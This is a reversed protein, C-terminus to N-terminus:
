VYLWLRESRREPFKGKLSIGKLGAIITARTRGDGVFPLATDELAVLDVRIRGSYLQRQCAMCLHASHKQPAGPMVYYTSRLLTVFFGGMQREESLPRGCSDCEAIGLEAISRDYWPVEYVQLYAPDIKEGCTNGDCWSVCELQRRKRKSPTAIPAISAAQPGMAQVGTGIESDHSLKRMPYTTPCLSLSKCTKGRAAQVADCAYPPFVHHLFGGRGLVSRWRACQQAEVVRAVSAQQQSWPVAWRWAMNALPVNPVVVLLSPQGHVLGMERRGLRGVSHASSRVPAGNPRKKFMCPMNAPGNSCHPPSLSNFRAFVASKRGIRKLRFAVPSRVHCGRKFETGM